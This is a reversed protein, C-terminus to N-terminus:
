ELFVEVVLPNEIEEGERDAAEKRKNKKKKEEGKVGM